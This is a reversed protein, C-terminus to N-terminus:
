VTDMAPDVAVELDEINDTAHNCLAHGVCLAGIGGVLSFVLQGLLFLVLILTLAGMAMMRQSKGLEVGGINLNWNEDENKQMFFYWAAGMVGLIILKTPDILISVFFAISFTAAYNVQFYPINKMIRSQANDKSPLSMAGFEKLGRLNTAHHGYREKFPQIFMQLEELKNKPIIEGDMAGDLGGPIPKGVPTMETQKEDSKPEAPLM